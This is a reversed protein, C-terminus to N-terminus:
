WFSKICNLFTIKVPQFLFTTMFGYGLIIWQACCDWNTWTLKLFFINKKGILDRPMELDGFFILTYHHLPYLSLWLLCTIAYKRHKTKWTSFPGNDIFCNVNYMKNSCSLLFFFGLSFCFAWKTRLFTFNLNNTAITQELRLCASGINTKDFRNCRYSLWFWQWMLRWHFPLLYDHRSCM